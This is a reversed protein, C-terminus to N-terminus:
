GKWVSFVGGGRKSAPATEEVIVPPALTQTSATVTQVNRVPKPAPIPAVPAPIPAPTSTATNKTSKMPKEKENSTGKSEAAVFLLDEALEMGERISYLSKDGMNFVDNDDNDPLYGLAVDTIITSNDVRLCNEDESSRSFKPGFMEVINNDLFSESDDDDFFCSTLLASQLPHTQSLKGIIREDFFARIEDLSM